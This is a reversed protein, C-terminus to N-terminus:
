SEPDLDEVPLWDAGFAKAIKALYNTDGGITEGAQALREVMVAAAKEDVTNAAASLFWPAVKGDRHIRGMIQRAKIGSYRPSHLLGLRPTETAKRGDGLAEGAHLSLSASPTFIVVPARGLQFRLREKETDFRGSGYICAVPVKLGELRERLPEAGTDIYEVSVAVQAGSEVQAAVWEASAPVRLLSSKQRFRILAARGRARDNGKRALAMDACFEGWEAEYQAWESPTLVVSLMHLQPPGQPAARYLMSPPRADTLWGRVRKVDHAREAPDETWGVGYRGKTLHIGHASLHGPFDDLWEKSTGGVQDAFAGALYPLELPTHSPTATTVILYPRRTSRGLGSLTVWHGWRKTTTYRVAHAEDAVIVDAAYGKVKELRDWTTVLWELGGDGVAAISRGWHAITINAPRDAIVLVRAGKRLACAAKAGIIATITKGVGPEDALLFETGGAACHKAIARAGEVQLPYPTMAAVQMRHPSPTANLNNEVWREYTYPASLYRRLPAPPQTGSWVTAKAPPYWRAGQGAVMARDEYPVDLVWHRGGVGPDPLAAPAAAGRRSATRRRAM